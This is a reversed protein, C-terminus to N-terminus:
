PTPNPSSPPLGVRILRIGQAAPEAVLESNAGVALIRGHGPIRIERVLRGQRDVV